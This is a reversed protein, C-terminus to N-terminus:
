SDICNVVCSCLKGPVYLWTDFENVIALTANGVIVSRVTPPKNDKCAAQMRGSVVFWTDLEHIIAFTDNGAFVRCESASQVRRVELSQTQKAQSQLGPTLSMSALPGPQAQSSLFLWQFGTTGVILSAQSLFGPKLSM